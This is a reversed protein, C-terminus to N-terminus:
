LSTPENRCEANSDLKNEQTKSILRQVHVSFFFCMRRKYNWAISLQLAERRTLLLQNWNIPASNAKKKRPRLGKVWAWCQVPTLHNRGSGVRKHLTLHAFVYQWQLHWQKCKTQTYLCFSHTTTKTFFRVMISATEFKRRELMLYSTIFSESIFYGGVYIITLIVAM